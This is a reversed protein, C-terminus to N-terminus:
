PLTALVYAAASALTGAAGLLAAILASRERRAGYQGFAECTLYGLFFVLPLHNEVGLIRHYLMALVCLSLFGVAGWQRGRNRCDREGEDGLLNEKRSRELVEDRDM